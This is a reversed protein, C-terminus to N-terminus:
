RKNNRKRVYCTSPFSSLFFIELGLYHIRRHHNSCVVFCKRLETLISEWSQKEIEFFNFCKEGEHHVVLIFHEDEDCGPFQCGIQAKLNAIFNRKAEGDKRGNEEGNKKEGIM